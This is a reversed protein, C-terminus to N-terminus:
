TVYSVSRTAQVIHTAVEPMGLTDNEPYDSMSLVKNLDAQFMQVNLNSQKTNGADAALDDHVKDAKTCCGGILLGIKTAIAIFSVSLCVIVAFDDFALWDNGVILAILLFPMDEVSMALIGIMGIDINRSRLEKMWEGGLNISYRSKIHGFQHIILKKYAIYRFCLVTVGGIVLVLGIWAVYNAIDENLAYACFLLHICVVSCEFIFVIYQRCGIQKIMEMWDATEDEILRKKSVILLWVIAVIFILLNVGIIILLNMGELPLLFDNSESKAEIPDGIIVASQEEIDICTSNDLFGEAVGLACFQEQFDMAFETKDLQTFVSTQLDDNYSFSADIEYEDDQLLRRRRVSDVSDILLEEESLDFCFAESWNIQLVAYFFASKCSKRVKSRRNSASPNDKFRLRIRIRLKWEISCIDNSPPDTLPSQTPIFSPSLTTSPSFSPDETPNFTQGAAM